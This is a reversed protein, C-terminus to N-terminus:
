AALNHEAIYDMTDKLSQSAPMDMVVYPNSSGAHSREFDGHTEVLIRHQNNQKSADIM